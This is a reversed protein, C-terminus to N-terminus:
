YLWRKHDSLFMGPKTIRQVKRPRPSSSPLPDDGDEIEDAARKASVSRTVPRLPPNVIEVSSDEDSFGEVDGEDSFMSDVVPSM